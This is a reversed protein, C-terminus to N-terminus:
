TIGDIVRSHSLEQTTITGVRLYMGRSSLFFHHYVQSDSSFCILITSNGSTLAHSEEGGDSGKPVRFEVMLFLHTVRDRSFDGLCRFDTESSVFAELDSSHSTYVSAYASEARPPVQMRHIM